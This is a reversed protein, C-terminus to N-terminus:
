RNNNIFDTIRNRAENINLSMMLNDNVKLKLNKSFYWISDLSTTILQASTAPIRQIQIQVRGNMVLTIKPLNSLERHRVKRM